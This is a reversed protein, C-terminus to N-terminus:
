MLNFPRSNAIIAKRVIFELLDIEYKLYEVERTLPLIKSDSESAKNHVIKCRVDYIRKTVDSIIGVNDTLRLKESSLNKANKGSYYDNLYENETIFNIIEEGSTIKLLTTYLQEREDGYDNRKNTNILNLLKLIDADRNINFKPDKITNKIKEKAESIAYIPYYYEIAQYFAFFQFIPSYISNKAFWYLSMPIDDYEYDLNLKKCDIDSNHLKRNKTLRNKINERRPSLTITTEYLLDMQYFLSNSIKELLKIAEEHTSVNINDIKLTLRFRKIDELDYYRRRDKNSCLITFEKSSYGLSVKINDNIFLAININEENENENELVMNEEPVLLRSLRRFIFHPPINTSAVVECEIIHLENSWIAEYKSIGRYKCINSGLIGDIYDDDDYIRIEDSERAIALEFILLNRQEEEVSYEEIRNVVKHEDLFNKLEMLKNM